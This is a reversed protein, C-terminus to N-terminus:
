ASPPLMPYEEPNALAARVKAINIAGSDTRYILPDLRLLILLEDADDSEQILTNRLTNASKEANIAAM